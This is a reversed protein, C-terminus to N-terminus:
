NASGCTPILSGRNSIKLQYPEIAGIPQGHQADQMLAQKNPWGACGSIKANWWKPRADKQRQNAMKQATCLTARM